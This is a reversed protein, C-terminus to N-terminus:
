ERGGWDPGRMVGEPPFVQQYFGLQAKYHPQVRATWPTKVAREHEPSSQNEVADIEYFAMYKPEGEVAVYRRASRYGPVKLLNPVHEEDYWRNLEDEWAPEVDMTVIYITGSLAEM